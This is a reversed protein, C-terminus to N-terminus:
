SVPIAIELHNKDVEFLINEAYLLPIVIDIYVYEFIKMSGVLTVKEKYVFDNLSVLYLCVDNLLIECRQESGNYQQSIASIANFM